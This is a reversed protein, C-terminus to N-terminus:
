GFRAFLGAFSRQEAWQLRECLRDYTKWHMGKPKEGDDGLRARLKHMLNTGRMRQAELQSYYCLNYCRRCAFIKGAGYLNGVRRGCYRGNKWAPCIFWPREGGYHCATWELTIAQEVPEGNCRYNLTVQHRSNCTHRIDGSPEGAYTWHVSSYCGPRLRGTRYLWNINLAKIAECASKGMLM